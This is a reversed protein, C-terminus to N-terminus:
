HQLGTLYILAGMFAVLILAVAGFVLARVPAFETHTVFSAANGKMEAVDDAISQTREDLRILLERDNLPPTM